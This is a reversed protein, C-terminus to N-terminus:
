GLAGIRELPWYRFFAHGTVNSLPVPGFYRSDSSNTRNDGMVWICGEPVTYPYSIEHEGALPLSKKGDTYPEDLKSGDVYVAGDKLDVQQGATAIVRKILVRSPDDVDVFTVIDGQAPSSALYSIRESLVRDGTMITDEMSESPIEYPKVVFNTIFWALGIAVAVVVVLEIFGGLASGKKKAQRVQVQMQPSDYVVGRASAPVRHAQDAYPQQARPGESAAAPQAPAYPQAPTYPAAAPQGDPRGGPQAQTAGQQPRAAQAQVAPQQPQAQRTRQPQQPITMDDPVRAKVKRERGRFLPADCLRVIM